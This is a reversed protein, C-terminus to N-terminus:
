DQWTNHPISISGNQPGRQGLPRSCFGVCWSGYISQWSWIGEEALLVTEKISEDDLYRM